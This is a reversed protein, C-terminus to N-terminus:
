SVPWVDSPQRPFLVDLLAPAADGRTSVDPFAYKLEALSRYGCLLQLFTLGPFVADGSHAAPEPQWAEVTTIAGNEFALRLGSRYFSLALEGSHGALASAALRSELAPRIHALFGPLDPIRIYWAYPPRVRPLRDAIVAYAPHAEGLWLGFADWPEKGTEATHQKGAAALYRIMSPTVAAWSVGPVLEYRTCVQTPGWNEAPHALFGVAEGGAKEIIRLEWRNVNRQTKGFAEYEFLAANWVCTLPYRRCSQEYVSQIFALDAAAEAGPRVPRLTFPEATDPPLAPMHPSFGIRGGSLNLAMEYGFIRYYYPIGTIAQM